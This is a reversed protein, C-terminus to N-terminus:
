NQELAWNSIYEFPWFIDHFHIFVGPKLIPLINFLEHCVDSGTKMVHTSDIFLFDGAELSEFIELNAKQVTTTHIRFRQKAEKGLLQLLLDPYPEVFDVEVESNLYQDITDIACASSYGSGVEVYRQPRYCRLMAHLISGDGYGFAPNEFFYRFEESKKEPFPIDQLYPLLKGWSEIHADRSINIARLSTSNVSRIFSTRLEEVNVIPSYFHGPPVFLSRIVQRVKYFEESKVFTDIIDELLVGEQLAKVWHDLDQRDPERHFFGLYLNKITKKHHSTDKLIM